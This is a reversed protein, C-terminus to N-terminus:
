SVTRSALRAFVYGSSFAGIKNTTNRQPGKAPDTLAGTEYPPPM